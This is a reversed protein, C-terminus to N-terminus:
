RQAIRSRGPPLFRAVEDPTAIGRVIHKEDSRAMEVLRKAVIVSMKNFDIEGIEIVVFYDCHKRVGELPGGMLRLNELDVGIGANMVVSVYNRKGEIFFSGRPLYEGARASKKVQEPFVYYVEGSHKGEKWLASYIGAFQCAERISADGAKKGNKLITAAGGPTETHFFLDNKEMHKSVIEENMEANRGGIVLFGESTIYWRYKEYWQRKRAVRIGTLFKSEKEVDKLEDRTREIARLVGELKERSKKARNYYEEAIEPLSRDLWIKFTLSDLEVEIANEEPIVRKIEKLRGKKHQDELIRMIEDWKKSERITRFASQIKEIRSYNEYIYEAIRRNTEVDRLFREKAELQSKLRANLREVRENKKEDAEFREATKWSYFSDIALYLSDFYKKEANKYRLLEVPQFDVYKGDELIIHPKVSKFSYLDRIAEAIRKIEDESLEDGKKNKDVGARELIEEAYVGGTGLKVAITKVIEKKELMEKLDDEKLEAPNIRVEPFKYAEGIKVNHKLPMIVRFDEDLLILNGKSFLEAIIHKKKERQFSLIVIRDFNHQKVDVLRGGELHKRLLMAFSSPFRPSEKPFSTPHFRVGAEIVLDMRREGRLKFRVEDPPYHYIKDVRLGIVQSRIENLLIAIEFSSM